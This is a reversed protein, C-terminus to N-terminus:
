DAALKRRSIDIQWMLCALIMCFATMFFLPLEFGDSRQALYGLALPGLFGGIQGFSFFLGMALGTNGPDVGKLQMVLLTALPLLAGRVIGTMFLAAIIWTLDSFVGLVLFGIAAVLFLFLLVSAVTFTKALRPMILASFIAVMVPLAALNAAEAVSLGPSRQNLIQPLWNITAHQYFLIGAGVILTLRTARDSLLTLVAIRASIGPQSEQKQNDWHRTTSVVIMLWAFLSLLCILGYIDYVDRWDLAFIRLLEQSAVLGMVSGLAVIATTIGLALWRQSHVFCEGIVKPVGISVLPAGLGFIVFAIYMGLFSDAGARLLTSLSILGMGLYLLIRSGFRDIALGSPISLLIYAMPWAGMIAGMGSYGINLDSSIEVALSSTSFHVLAFCFYQFSIGALILWRAPSNAVSTSILGPRTLSQFHVSRNPSWGFWGETRCSSYRM